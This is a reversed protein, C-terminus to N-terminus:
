KVTWSLAKELEAKLAANDLKDFDLEVGYAKLFTIIWKRQEQQHVEDIKM